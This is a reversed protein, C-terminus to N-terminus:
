NYRMFVVNRKKFVGHKFLVLVNKQNMDEKSDVREDTYKEGYELHHMRSNRHLYALASLDATIRM